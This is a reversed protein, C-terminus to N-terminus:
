ESRKAKAPRKTAKKKATKEIEPQTSDAIALILGLCTFM